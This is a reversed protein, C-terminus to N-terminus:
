SMDLYLLSRTICLSIITHLRHNIGPTNYKSIIYPIPSHRRRLMPPRPHLLEMLLAPYQNLFMERLRQLEKFLLFEEL